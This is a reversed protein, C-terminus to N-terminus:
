NILYPETKTGKGSIYSVDSNLYFCPRVSGLYYYDDRSYTSGFHNYYVKGSHWINFIMDSTGSKKTITWDSMGMYMWNNDTVNSYYELSTGWLSPNLAYGYDSVYMLGVKAQVVTEDASSVIENQYALSASVNVINQKTNGGTKWTYNSIKNTWKSGINNLYNTNLNLTNLKSEGWVNNGTNLNFYFADISELEGKYNNYPSFPYSYREGDTGLLNTNAYDYKILKVNDDFVGIIRYLNDTPCSGDTSDYGFCVFNNTTESSGSYRYSNDKAGGGLNSDHFYLNNEGQTTYTKKIYYAFSLVDSEKDFYVYCKDANTGIMVVNKKANDWSLSSGNECKSLTENFVYGDEPWSSRTTEQYKGSGAETELMMSLVEKEDENLQKDLYIDQSQNNFIYIASGIIYIILLIKFAKKM